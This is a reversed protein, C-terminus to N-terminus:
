QPGPPNPSSPSSSGSQGGPDAQNDAQDERVTRYGLIGPGLNAIAERCLRGLDRGKLSNQTVEMRVAVEILLEETTALGLLPGDEPSTTAVMFDCASCEDRATRHEHPPADPECCIHECTPEAALHVGDDALLSVITDAKAAAEDKTVGGLVVLIGALVIRPNPDEHDTTSERAERLRSDPNSSM